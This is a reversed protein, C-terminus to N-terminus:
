NRGDAISPNRRRNKSKYSGSCYGLSTSYMRNHVECLPVGGDSARRVSMGYVPRCDRMARPLTEQLKLRDQM